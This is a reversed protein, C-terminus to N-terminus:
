EELTPRTVRDLARRERKTPRGMGAARRPMPPQRKVAPPPPSHDVFCAAAAAAGVRKEIVSAVVVVRQRAIFAEVRDGLKVPTSAKATSGNVRVRGRRCAATAISRTKALRVAWLWQDVRTTEVSV